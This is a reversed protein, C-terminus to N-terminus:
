PWSKIPAADACHCPQRRSSPSPLEDSARPCQRRHLVRVHHPRRRVVPLVRERRWTGPLIRRRKGHDHAILPPTQLTGAVSNLEDPTTARRFRARRCHRQPSCCNCRVPGVRRHPHLPWPAGGSQTPPPQSSAGARRSHRTTASAWCGSGRGPRGVPYAAARSSSPNPWEPIEVSSRPRSGRPLGLVDM